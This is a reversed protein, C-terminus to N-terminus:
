LFVNILGLGINQILNPDKISARLNCPAFSQAGSRKGQSYAKILKVTVKMLSKKSWLSNLTLCKTNLEILIWSECYVM